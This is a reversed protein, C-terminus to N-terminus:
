EDFLPRIERFVTALQEASLPPILQHAGILLLYLIDGVVRARGSGVGAGEVLQRCYDRRLRDVRAQVTRALEDQLAWTRMAVELAPDLALSERTLRTIKEAPTAEHDSLQIIRHTSAQEWFDLLAALYGERNGFHFYFSGKSRELRRCLEDVTLAGIGDEKLITLGTELWTERAIGM